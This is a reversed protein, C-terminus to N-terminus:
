GQNASSLPPVNLASSTPSSVSGRRGVSPATEAKREPLLSLTQAFSPSEIGAASVSPMSKTEVAGVQGLKNFYQSVRSDIDAPLQLPEYGFQDVLDRGYIFNMDMYHRATMDSHYLGLVNNGVLSQFSKDDLTLYFQAPMVDGTIFKHLLEIGEVTIFDQTSIRQKEDKLESVRSAVLSDNFATQLVNVPYSVGSIKRYGTLTPNVTLRNLDLKFETMRVLPATNAAIPVFPLAMFTRAQQGQKMDASAQEYISQYQSPNALLLNFTSQADPTYFNLPTRLYNIGNRGLNTAFATTLLLLSQNMDNTAAPLAAPALGALAMLMEMYTFGWDSGTSKIIPIWTNLLQPDVSPAPVKYEAPYSTGTQATGPTVGFRSLYKLDDAQSITAGDPLQMSEGSRVRTTYFGPFVYVTGDSVYINPQPGLVFSEAHLFTVVSDIQKIIAPDLTANELRIFDKTPKPWLYNIRQSFYLPTVKPINPHNLRLMKYGVASNIDGRLILYKEGNRYGRIFQQGHNVPLLTPISPVKIEKVERQALDLADQAKALEIKKTGIEDEIKDKKSELDNLVPNFDTKVEGFQQREQDAQRIVNTINAKAEDLRVQADKIDTQITELNKIMQGVKIEADRLPKNLEIVVERSRQVLQTEWGSRNLYAEQEAFLGQNYRFEYNISTNPKDTYLNAVWGAGTKQLALTQDLAAKVEPEM